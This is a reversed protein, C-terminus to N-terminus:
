FWRRIPWFSVTTVTTSYASEWRDCLPTLRMWADHLLAPLWRCGSRSSRTNIHWGKSIRIELITQSPLSDPHLLIRRESGDVHVLGRPMNALPDKEFHDDQAFKGDSRLEPIQSRSYTAPRWRKKPILFYRSYFGSESQAPPVIELAGRELLNMVEARFFKPM